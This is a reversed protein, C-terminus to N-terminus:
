LNWKVSDFNKVRLKNDSGLMFAKNGNNSLAAKSIPVGSFVTQQSIRYIEGETVTKYVVTM